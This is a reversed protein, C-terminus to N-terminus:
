GLVRGSGRIFKNLDIHDVGVNPLACVAPIKYKSMKQPLPDQISEESVLVRETHKATSIIILDNRGVGKGRYNAGIGLTQRIRTADKSIAANRPIIQIGSESLWEGCDPERLMVEDLVVKPIVIRQAQIEELLWRWVAPFQNIPYFFWADIFSSTDFIWM